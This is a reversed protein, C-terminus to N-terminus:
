IFVGQKLLTDIEKMEDETAGIGNLKISKVMTFGSKSSLADVYYNCSRGEFNKYGKADINLSEAQQALSQAPRILRIFPQLHQLRSSGGSFSGSRQVQPPCSATNMISSAAAAGALMYNGTAAAVAATGLGGLSAGLNKYYNSYNVGTFPIQEMCNSCYQGIIHEVLRSDKTQPVGVGRLIAVCDGTFLNINYRLSIRGPKKSGQGTLIDSMSVRVFGIFPLYVECVSYPDFDIAGGWKEAVNVYGCDVSVYDAATNTDTNVVYHMPVQTDYVGIVCNTTGVSRIGLADFNLPLYGLSIISQIPDTTFMKKIADLFNDTWLQTSLVQMETKTPAYIHVMGTSSAGGGTSTRDGPGPDTGDSDSDDDPNPDQHQQNDDEPINTNSQDTDDQIYEGDDGEIETDGEVDDGSTEVTYAEMPLTHWDHWPMLGASHLPAYPSRIAYIYYPLFNINEFEIGPFYGEQGGYAYKITIPTEPNAVNDFISGLKNSTQMAGTFDNYKVGDDQIFKQHFIGHMLLCVSDASPQTISTIDPLWRTQPACLWMTAAYNDDRTITGEPDHGTYFLNTMQQAVYWDCFRDATDIYQWATSQGADYAVLYFRDNGSVERYILEIVFSWDYQSPGEATFLWRRRGESKAGAWDYSTITDTTLNHQELFWTWLFLPDKGTMFPFLFCADNGPNYDWIRVPNNGDYLVQEAVQNTGGWMSSVDVTQNLIVFKRSDYYSM